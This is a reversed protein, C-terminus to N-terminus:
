FWESKRSQLPVQKKRIKLITKKKPWICFFFQVTDNKKTIKCGTRTLLDFCFLYLVFDFFNVFIFFVNLINPMPRSAALTQRNEQLLASSSSSSSSPPLPPLVSNTYTSVSLALNEKQM